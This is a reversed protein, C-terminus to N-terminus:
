NVMQPLDRKSLCCRKYNGRYPLPPLRASRTSCASGSSCRCCTASLRGARTTGILEMLMESADRISPSEDFVIKISDEGTLTIRILRTFPTEIFHSVINLSLEGADSIETQLAFRAEFVDGRQGLM